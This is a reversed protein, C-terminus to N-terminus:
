FGKTHHKTFEMPSSFVNEKDADLVLNPPRPLKCVNRRYIAAGACQQNSIVHCPLVMDSHAARVWDDVEGGGLWGPLSQRSFPCDSCCKIHQIDSQVSEDSSILKRSM